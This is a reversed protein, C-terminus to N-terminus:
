PRAAEPDFREIPASARANVTFTGVPVIRIVTATVRVTVATATRDSTVTTSDALRGVTSTMIQNAVTDPNAATSVAQLAADQAAVQAAHRVHAVIAFQVIVWTMVLLLPVM